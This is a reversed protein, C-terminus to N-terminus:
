SNKQKAKKLNEPRSHFLLAFLLCSLLLLCHLCVEVCPVEVAAAVVVKAMVTMGVAKAVEMAVEKDEAEMVVEKIKPGTSGALIKEGAEAM